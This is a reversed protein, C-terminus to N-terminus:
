SCERNARREDTQSRSVSRHGSARSSRVGAIVGLAHRAFRAAAMTQVLDLLPASLDGRQFRRRRVTSEVGSFESGDLLFSGCPSRGFAAGAGALMTQSREPTAKGGAEGHGRV